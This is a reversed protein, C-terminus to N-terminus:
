SLISSRRVLDWLPVCELGLYSLFGSSSNSVSALWLLAVVAVLEVSPEVVMGAVMGAVLEVGPEVGPEVSPEVVMGAVMGAVLEVDPEVDSGVGPEVVIGAVIGAVLEPVPEVGPEVVIGAVIRVDVEAAEAPLVLLGGGIGGGCAGTTADDEECLLPLNLDGGRPCRLASRTSPV